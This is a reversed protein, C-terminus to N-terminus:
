NGQARYLPAPQTIYALIEEWSHFVVDAGERLLWYRADDPKHAVATIGIVRMGAAKGARVGSTSDEIVITEHPQAGLTEAALLFLDPAPKGREVMERTFINKGFLDLMKMNKLSNMVNAGEGNSAVCIKCSQALTTVAEMAGPLAYSGHATLRAVEDVFQNLFDAPLTAGNEQEVLEMIAPQAMGVFNQLCYDLTYQPFGLRTLVNSTAQNNPIETAALTGDHDFIALKIDAFNM